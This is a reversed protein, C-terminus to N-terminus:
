NSNGGNLTLNIVNIVGDEYQMEVQYTRNTLINASTTIASGGLNITISRGSSTQAQEANSAQVENFLAKVESGTVNEGEYKLLKSNYSTIEAQSMGSNSVTDQAQSFIMIGLSILLIALLIAGAIILAKSANEM